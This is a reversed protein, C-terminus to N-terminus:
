LLPKIHKPWNKFYPNYFSWSYLGSRKLVLNVANRKGLEMAFNALIAGAIYLDLHLDREERGMEM